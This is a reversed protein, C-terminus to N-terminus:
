NIYNIVNMLMAWLFHLQQEVKVRKWQQHNSGSTSSACNLVIFHLPVLEDRNSELRAEKEEEKGMQGDIVLWSPCDIM